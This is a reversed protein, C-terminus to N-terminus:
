DNGAETLSAIFAVAEAPNKLRCAASTMDYGIKITWAGSPMASFLDEDTYDDGMALVFDYEGGNLFYRAGQYKNVASPKVEVIKSGEFVKVDTNQVLVGLNQKLEAARATGLDQPVSRFHWVLSLEKNEVFSGPTNRVFREMVPLIRSKWETNTGAAYIWDGDGGGLRIMGGHEAVLDLPLKGFWQELTGKDRGSVIVVRAKEALLTLLASVDKGPAASKPDKRFPSITGDYDLFLIAKKSKAFADRIAGAAGATMDKSHIAANEAVSADLKELFSEAWAEVDFSELRQQMMAIPEKEGAPDGPCLCRYIEEAVEEINYPNVIHAESMERAAGAFESLILKGTGDTRSAIYEKAVLNMGDRLPTILAADAIRYLASMQAFSMTQYLYLIPSWEITAYKGNIRGVTEEITQKISLYSNIADRSPSVVIILLLKGHMDSHKELFREYAQLRQVIGKTYDLRDISIIVKQSKFREKLRKLEAKVQPLGGANRYRAYEIGMPFTDVKVFRNRYFIGGFQQDTGLINKVSTHFYQAYYSTHFGVLNAGMLGELIEKRYPLLRFIEYSPFPIHHFYGVSCEVGEERLMGPLLMLQYDHIWIKDDPEVFGAITKAFLRNVTRYANWYTDDFEALYQFYHFLPWVTKNSFGLYYADFDKKPIFVPHMNKDTLQSVIWDKEEDAITEKHYGHWGFWESPHTRFFGSLGTALGGVSRSLYMRNNKKGITVPLRNSVM